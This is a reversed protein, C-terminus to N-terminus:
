LSSARAGNMLVHVTEYGAIYERRVGAAVGLECLWHFWLLVMFILSGIALDFAFPVLFSIFKQWNELLLARFGQYGDRPQKRFDMLNSHVM